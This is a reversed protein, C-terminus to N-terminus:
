RPQMACCRPWPPVATPDCTGLELQRNPAREGVLAGEESGSVGGLIGHREAVDGDDGVDVVALGRQHVLQEGLGPHEAGVLGVGFAGHIGVVLLALAADGDQGLAGAHQPVALGAVGADVDDVRGAVGVEAALHLPDQAHHVAADQQDVGLFPHHGLGLEHEALRQLHAQAGDDAQVLDVAGVGIRVADMVFGEVQEGGDAGGVVLQVERVDVGRAAGTPRREVEILGAFGQGRQEVQDDAVHRLGLRDGLLVAGELDEGHQDLVVREQAAQEGPADLAALRRRAQGDVGEADVALLDLAAPDGLHQGEAAQLALGDVVGFRAVDHGDRAEGLRGHGVREAGHIHRVGKRSWGM